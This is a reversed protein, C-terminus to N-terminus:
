PRACVPVLRVAGLDVRREWLLEAVAYGFFVSGMMHVLLDHFGINGDAPSYGRGFDTLCKEVFRAVKISKRKGNAPVVQWPLKAVARERTQLVAHLHGDQQRFKNGLAVLRYPRGLDAERIASAIYEPTLNGGVYLSQLTLPLEISAESVKTLRTSLRVAFARLTTNAAIAANRLFGM